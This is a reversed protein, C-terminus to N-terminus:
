LFGQLPGNEDTVTGSVEQGLMTGSIGIFMLFILSKLHLLKSM